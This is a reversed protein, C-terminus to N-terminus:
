SLLLTNQVADSIDIGIYSVHAKWRRAVALVLRDFRRRREFEECEVEIDIHNSWSRSSGVDSNDVRGRGDIVDVGSVEDRGTVPSGGKRRVVDDTRNHLSRLDDCVPLIITSKLEISYEPPICNM